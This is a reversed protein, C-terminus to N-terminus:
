TQSFVRKGVPIASLVLLHIDAIVRAGCVISCHRHTLLRMTLCFNDGNGLSVAIQDFFRRGRPLVDM